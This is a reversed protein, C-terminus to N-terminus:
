GLIKRRVSLNLSLTHVTKISLLITFKIVVLKLHHMKPKHNEFCGLCSLCEVRLSNSNSIGDKYEKMFRVRFCKLKESHNRHQM